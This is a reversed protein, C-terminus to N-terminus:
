WLMGQGSEEPKKKRGRPKPQLTRKTQTELTRIFDASGCPRGSSTCARVRDLQEADEPSALWEAWNEIIGPPPFDAHLLSYKRLGCHPAASSWRYDQAKLAIGARVPNREVYRVAAWLHAEDLPCSFFRGQWLHGSLAHRTNFRMAYAGHADRLARALSNERRPAAVLHVHNSMLCWAWVELGHLLAAERLLRLYAHRDDDDVFVLARRNGRQTIHHPHGAVVTRATRSM